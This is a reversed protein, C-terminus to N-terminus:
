TINRAYSIQIENALVIYAAESIEESGVPLTDYWNDGNVDFLKYKDSGGAVRLVQTIAASNDSLKYYKPM